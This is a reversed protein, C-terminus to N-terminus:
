GDIGCSEAMSQKSAQQINSLWLLILSATLFCYLCQCFLCGGIRFISKCHELL